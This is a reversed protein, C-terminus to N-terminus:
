LSNGMMFLPFHDKKELRKECYDIAGQFAIRYDQDLVALHSDGAIYLGNVKDFAAAMEEEKLRYDIAVVQVGSQELFQVHAKPVYSL